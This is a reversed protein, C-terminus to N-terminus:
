GFLRVGDGPGQADLAVLAAFRRELANRKEKAKDEIGPSAAGSRSRAGAAPRLQRLAEALQGIVEAAREVQGRRTAQESESRAACAELQELAALIRAVQEDRHRRAVEALFLRGQRTGSLTAELAAFDSEELIQPAALEGAETAFRTAAGQKGM